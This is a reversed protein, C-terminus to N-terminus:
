IPETCLPREPKREPKLLLYLLTDSFPFMYILFEWVSEPFPYPGLITFIGQVWPILVEIWPNLFLSISCFCEKVVLLADTAKYEWKCLENKRWLVAHVCMCKDYVYFSHSYPFVLALVVVLCLFCLSTFLTLM